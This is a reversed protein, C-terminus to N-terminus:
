TQYIMIEIGGVGANHQIGVKANAVQRPGAEGRLQRVIETIMAGGTAGMPHGRSLLGGDTNVPKKGTIETGGEWVFPGGEGKKCFGLNEITLIEGPTFADHCQCVDVDEPGLGAMEYVKKALMETPGESLAVEGPTYTPTAGGWGVLFVPKTTYRRAKEESCIIVASAGDSTPCCQYLTIPDAIMRSNMVEELTLPAQYQAYPNLVGNRHSKVSVQAFHEPKTGYLAMHRQAMLAYAGPMLALGMAGQFSVGGGANMGVPLMGRGMKEVGIIMCTDFIGALISNAALDVARSSSACALEVNTVPLGTRGLEGFVSLGVGSGAVVRGCFGADIDRFDMGADKLAELGATRGLENISKEPFRGFPHLGVGLVVVRKDSM